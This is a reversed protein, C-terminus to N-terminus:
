SLPVQALLGEAIFQRLFPRSDATPAQLWADYEEEPLIVLMRKEDQPKPYQQIYPHDDANVTLM